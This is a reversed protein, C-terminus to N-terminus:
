ELRVTTKQSAYQISKKPLTFRRSACAQIIQTKDSAPMPENRARKSVQHCDTTTAGFTQHRGHSREDDEFLPTTKGARYEQLAKEAMQALLDQSRAFSEDWRREADNDHLYELYTAEDVFRTLRQGNYDAQLAYRVQRKGSKTAHEYKHARVHERPVEVMRREKVSYFQM